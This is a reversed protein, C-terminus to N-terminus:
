LVQKVQEGCFDPAKANALRQLYYLLGSSVPRKKMM